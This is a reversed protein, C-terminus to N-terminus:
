LKNSRPHTVARVVMAVFSVSASIIAVAGVFLGIGYLGQYPTGRGGWMDFHVWSTYGAVVGVILLLLAQQWTPPRRKTGGLM